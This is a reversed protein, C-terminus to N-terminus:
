GAHGHPHIPPLTGRMRLFPAAVPRADGPTARCPRVNAAARHVEHSREELMREMQKSFRLRQQVRRKIARELDGVRRRRRLESAGANRRPTLRTEMVPPPMLLPGVEDDFPVDFFAPPAASEPGVTARRSTCCCCCGPFGLCSPPAVFVSMHFASAGLRGYVHMALVVLKTHPTMASGLMIFGIIAIPTLLMCLASSVVYLGVNRADETALDSSLVRVSSWIFYVILMLKALATAVFTIGLLLITVTTNYVAGFRVAILADFALLTITVATPQWGHLQPDLPLEEKGSGAAHAHWFRAILVTSALAAGPLQMWLSLHAQLPLTDSDLQCGLGNGIALLVAPVIELTAVWARTSGWPSGTAAARLQWARAANVCHLLAPVVRVPLIWAASDYWERWANPEPGHLEVRVAAGDALLRDLEEAVANRRRKFFGKAGGGVDVIPPALAAAPLPPLRARSVSRAYVAVGPIDITSRMVIAAAGADALRHYITEIPCSRFVSGRMFVVNGAITSPAASWGCPDDDDPLVYLSANAAQSDFSFTAPGLGLSAQPAAVTQRWTSTSFTAHGAAAPLRVAAVALLLALRRVSLMPQRRTRTRTGPWEGCRSATRRHLASAELAPAEGKDLPPRRARDRLAAVHTRESQEQVERAHLDGGKRAAAGIGRSSAAAAGAGAGIGGRRGIEPYLVAGDALM